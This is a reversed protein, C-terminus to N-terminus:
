KIGKVFKWIAFGTRFLPECLAEAPYHKIFRLNRLSMRFYRHIKNESDKSGLRDDYKGFNGGRIVEEMLFMGEKENKPAIMKDETLGFSEYLVYMIAGAFKWLGLHKITQQIMALDNYASRSTNTSPNDTTSNTDICHKEKYNTQRNLDAITLVYYYDLLQRLGIGETFVHRFLHSLIYITNFSATPVSIKGYNDPLVVENMCQTHMEQNFWKQMRRNRFPNSMFSPTFHVEIPPKIIPFDVHHYRMVQNPYVTDIYQMIRKRGGELYIDIDGPTRSYPDQYMLANGQGKLICNSFGAQIFRKSINASDMFLRVNQQRIKQATGMWKFLLAEPIPNRSLEEKYESGIREVGKFCFGVLAQKTAFEYFGKWNIKKVENRFDPKNGLCYKLFNSYIQISHM